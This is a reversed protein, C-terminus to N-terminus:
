VLSYRAKRIEENIEDLTMDQLHNKRAEERLELFAKMGSNQDELDSAPVDFPIKGERVVAKAFINFATNPDMGFETCLSTFERSLNEDMTVAFTIKSMIM